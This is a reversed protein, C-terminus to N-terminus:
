RIRIFADKEPDDTLLPFIESKMKRVETEGSTAVQKQIRDEFFVTRLHSEVHNRKLSFFFLKALHSLGRLTM